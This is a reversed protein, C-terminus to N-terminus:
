GLGGRMREVLRGGLGGLAALERLGVVDQGGMRVAEVIRGAKKAGVGSLGRIRAVDRSNIIALLQKTRPTPPDGARLACPPDRFIAVRSHATPHSTPRPPSPIVPNADPDSDPESVPSPAAHHAPHPPEEITNHPDSSPVPPHPRPRQAAESKKEKLRERLKSIKAALKANEPFYAKALEYMKLASSDEGRVHHQKAMLLFTLGEARGDDKSDIRQELTELRRQVEESIEPVAAMSPQDLARAALIETVKKEVM